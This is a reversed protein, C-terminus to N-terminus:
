GLFEGACSEENWALTLRKVSADRREWIREAAGPLEMWQFM